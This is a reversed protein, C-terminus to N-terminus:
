SSNAPDRGGRGRSYATSSRITVDARAQYAWGPANGAQQYWSAIAQTAGSPSASATTFPAGSGVQLLAQTWLTNSQPDRGDPAANGAPFPRPDNPPRNVGESLDAGWYLYAQKVQAGAPVSLTASSSDFHGNSPDVNVYIMNHDNNNANICATSDRPTGRTHRPRKARTKGPAVNEPCTEVTNGTVAV